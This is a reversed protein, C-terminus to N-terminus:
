SARIASVRRVADQPDAVMDVLYALEIPGSVGRVSLVSFFAWDGGDRREPPLARYVAESMLLPLNFDRTLDEIRAALNVTDGLVTFELREEDGIAGAIVDGTHLGIGIPM